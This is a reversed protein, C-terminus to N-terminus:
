RTIDGIKKNSKLASLESPHPIPLKESCFLSFVLAIVSAIGALIFGLTYNFGAGTLAISLPGFFAGLNIALYLLTMAGDRQKDRGNYVKLLQAYTAPAYLSNSLLILTFGSFLGFKHPILFSICSLIMLMNGIVMSKRYGFIRDALLGGIPRLGLPIYLMIGYLINIIFQKYGFIESAYLFVFSRIGYYCFREFAISLVPFLTQTALQNSNFPQQTQQM